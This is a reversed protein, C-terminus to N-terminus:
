VCARISDLLKQAAVPKALFMEAGWMEKASLAAEPHGSIIIIKTKSLRQLRRIFSLLIAGSVGPMQIDLLIVDPALRPLVRFADIGSQLIRVDYGAYILIDSFTECLEVDDDIILIKRM